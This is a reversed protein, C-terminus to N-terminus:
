HFNFRAGGHCEVGDIKWNGSFRKLRYTAVLGGDPSKFAIIARDAGEALTRYLYASPFDQACTIPSSVMGCIVNPQYHGGCERQVERREEGRMADLLGDSLLARYDVRKAAAVPGFRHFLNDLQEEDAGARKLMRDLVRESATEPAHFGASAALVAAVFAGIM